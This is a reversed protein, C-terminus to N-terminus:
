KLNYWVFTRLVLTKLVFTKIKEKKNKRPHFDSFRFDRKIKPYKEALFSYFSRRLTMKLGNSTRTLPKIGKRPNAGLFQM